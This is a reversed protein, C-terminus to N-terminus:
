EGGLQRKREDIRAHLLDLAAALEGYHVAEKSVAPLHISSSFAEIHSLKGTTTVHVTIETLIKAMHAIVRPNSEGWLLIQEFGQYLLDGFSPYHFFIRATGERDAMSTRPDARLAIKVLAEGIRDMCVLATFPDNFGPSLARLAIQVLENISYLIDKIPTRHSGITFFSSIKRKFKEDTEGGPKGAVRALPGDAVVFEGPDSMVNLYLDFKVAFSLMGQEDYDQVYGSKESTITTANNDPFPRREAMESDREPYLQPLLSNIESTVKSTITHIQISEHTHHIFYILLLINVLAIVMGAIVSIAPVATDRDPWPARGLIILSYMFSAIFAGFVVQNSRDKLFNPLVRPGFQSSVLSISVLSISFVVGAVTIMSGAIVALVERAGQPKMLLYTHKEAFPYLRSDIYPLFLSLGIAALLMLAPLFWLSQHLWFLSDRIWRIM